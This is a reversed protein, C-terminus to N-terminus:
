DVISLKNKKDMYLIKNDIIIPLSSIKTPLKRIEKLDGNLELILIYSNKLFIIIKSNLIMLSKFDAEKKKTNLFESIKSNLDYSYIIKGNSTNMATLFKEDSITFLYKGLIIPNFNSSINKKHLISGSIQDIIYTFKNTSIALKNNNNVINSAFFSANRNLELSQNLNVFWNLRMNENDIAYLSGFTNLFFTVNNNLSLNNKFTNKVITEETPIKTLLDGNKKNFFFLINDQNSAIIKDKFIKINSRFAVQYKKAWVIKSEKINYAYLYGLNDSIYVFNDEVILNLFKKIKKYKKQYFNYKRIVRNENISFIIINGKEDNIILNDNKYLLNKSITNKIIKKSKFVSNFNESYSFNKLNNSEDYNIDVWNYNSLSVFEEFKFNKDTNIVEKFNEKEIDLSEFDKFDDNDKSLVDENIWIGTKNDFSCNALLLILLVYFLKM